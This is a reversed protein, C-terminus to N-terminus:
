RTGTVFRWRNRTTPSMTPYCARWCTAKSTQMSPTGDPRDNVFIIQDAHKLKDIWAREIVIEQAELGVVDVVYDTGPSVIKTTSPPRRALASFSRRTVSAFAV